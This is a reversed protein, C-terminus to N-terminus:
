PQVGKLSQSVRLFAESHKKRLEPNYDIVSVGIDNNLHDAIVRRLQKCKDGVIATTSQRLAQLMQASNKVNDGLVQKSATGWLEVLVFLTASDKEANYADQFTKTLPDLPPKPDPKVPDPKVPDPTPTGGIVVVSVVPETPFDGKAGYALIRYRGAKGAMVVATHSDKLLQPPILSLGPDLVVWRLQACDTKARVIVFTSPEGTVEAPVELSQGLTYAPFAFVLYLATLRMLLQIM